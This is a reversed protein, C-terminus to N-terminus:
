VDGDKEQNILDSKRLRNYLLDQFNWRYSFERPYAYLNSSSIYFPLPCSKVMNELFMTFKSGVVELDTM